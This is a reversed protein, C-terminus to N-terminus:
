SEEQALQEMQELLLRMMRQQSFETCVREYGARGYEQRLKEDQALLRMARALADADGPPVTLGTKGDLSVFPVGMKLKTNIVPKAFAMAEMQVIGFAESSAISPLVFVHCDRYCAKLEADSIGSLFHVMEGKGMRKAEAKLEEELPGSGVIFLEANQLKGFARLLVDVGKYYVLRGVFLFKVTEPKGRKQLMSIEAIERKYEQMDMGFPIVCCKERYKALYASGDIHGQTAVIIRDVRRLFAHMIPRYFFMLKKQRVVDSHWWAMTKGRYGSFLYALDGLPFPMHFLLIDKEKCLRRLERFLGFSIPMSFKTGLTKARVVPVGGIEEEKRPGKKQCVLVQMQTQEKLGEAIQQVVHEIGGVDPAYLKNIQLVSLKKKM